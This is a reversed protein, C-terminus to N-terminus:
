GQAAMGSAIAIFFCASAIVVCGHWIATAYRLRQAAYFPVGATYILGGLAILIM